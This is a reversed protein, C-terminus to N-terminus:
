DGIEEIAFEGNGIGKLLHRLSTRMALKRKYGEGSDAVVRGNRHVIRWRWERKADRYVQVVYRITMPEGTPRLCWRVIGYFGVLCAITLLIVKEDSLIM